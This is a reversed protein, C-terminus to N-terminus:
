NYRTKKKAPCRLPRPRRRRQEEPPPRRRRRRSRRDLRQGHGHPQAGVPATRQLQAKRRLGGGRKRSLPRRQGDGEGGAAAVGGAYAGGGAEM